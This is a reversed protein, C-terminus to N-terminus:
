YRPFTCCLCVKSVEQAEVGTKKKKVKTWWTLGLNTAAAPLLGWNGESHCKAVWQLEDCRWGGAGWGWQWVRRGGGALKISTVCSLHCKSKRRGRKPNFVAIQELQLVKTRGWREEQQLPLRRHTYWQWLPFQRSDSSPSALPSGDQPLISRSLWTPDIFGSNPSSVLKMVSEKPPTPPKSWILFKQHSVSFHPFAPPFPVPPPSFIFPPFSWTLISGSM